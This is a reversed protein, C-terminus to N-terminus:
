RAEKDKDGFIAFKETSVPEELEIRDADNENGIM